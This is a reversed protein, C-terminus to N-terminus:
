LAFHRSTTRVGSETYGTVGYVDLQGDRFSLVKEQASMSGDLYDGYESGILAREIHWSFAQDLIVPMYPYSRQPGYGSFSSFRQKISRCYGYHQRGPLVPATERRYRLAIGPPLPFDSGFITGTYKGWYWASFDGSPYLQGGHDYLISWEWSQDAASKSTDLAEIFGVKVFDLQVMHTAGWLIFQALSNAWNEAANQNSAYAHALSAWRARYKPYYEQQSSLWFYGVGVIARAYM